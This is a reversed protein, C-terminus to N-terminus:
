SAYEVTMSEGEWVNVAYATEFADLSLDSMVFYEHLTDSSAITVWFRYVTTRRHNM